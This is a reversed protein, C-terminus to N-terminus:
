RPTSRSIALRLGEPASACSEGAVVNINMDKYREVFMDITLQFAQHNLMLTTVDWFLIGPKPFDPIGRISDTIIKKKADVDMTVPTSTATARRPSARSCRLPQLSRHTTQLLSSRAIMAMSCRHLHHMMVVYIVM